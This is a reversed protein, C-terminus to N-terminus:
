GGAFSLPAGPSLWTAGGFLQGDNGQASRDHATDGSGEDFRWYGVLGSAMPSAHGHMAARILTPDLAENWIRLEDIRGHWYEVNGPPDMGVYLPSDNPNLPGPELTSGDPEGDYYFRITVGDYTVAVYHWEQLPIQTNSEAATQDARDDTFRLHGSETGGMPGSQHITYNNAFPPGEDAGKTVISAWETYEDLYIWAAITFRYTMHLSPSDPVRAYDGDGDLALTWGGANSAATMSENPTVLASVRDDSHPAVPARECAVLLLVPLGLMLTRRPM